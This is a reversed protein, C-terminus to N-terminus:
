PNAPQATGENQPDPCWELLKANLIGIRDKLDGLASLADREESPVPIMRRWRGPWIGGRIHIGAIKDMIGKWQSLMDRSQSCFKKHDTVDKTIKDTIYGITLRCDTDAAGKSVSAKEAEQGKPAPPPVPPIAQYAVTMGIFLGLIVLALVLYEPNKM